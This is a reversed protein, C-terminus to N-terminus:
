ANSCRRRGSRAPFGTSSCRRPRKAHLVLASSSLSSITPCSAVRESFRICECVLSRVNTSKKVCPTVSRSHAVGLDAAIARMAHGEGLRPAWSGCNTCPARDCRDTYQLSEDLHRRM